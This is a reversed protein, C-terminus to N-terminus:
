NIQHTNILIQKYLNEIQDLAKETDFRSANELGAKILLNRKEPSLRVVQDVVSAAELAWEHIDQNFFKRSIYYAVDGGVETMPAESTTVVPCGSAMAEAIPWGFGEALSPFLFVTAGSYAQRVFDDSRGTLVHIDQNFPSNGIESILSSNPSTGILLLPLQLNFSDRLANYIKIVGIRNKYWQNGGVHLLYGSSVDVSTHKAIAQRSESINNVGFNQNLGNYVVESVAPKFGLMIHLENQTNKSVSIFNKGKEYGNKIYKQYLKGSWSIPNEPIKGLASFQALFDHCHIVHAHDKLLPVWPGLAQDSIVFLTETNNKKLRRRVIQPFLFFQDLYGVWKKFQQPMPLNYFNPQPTWVEVIHGRMEMGKVLMGAFRPMSQSQLFRPHTLFIINM